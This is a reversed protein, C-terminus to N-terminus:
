KLMNNTDKAGVYVGNLSVWQSKLVLVVQEIYTYKINHYM